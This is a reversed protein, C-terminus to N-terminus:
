SGVVNRIDRNDLIPAEGGLSGDLGVSVMARALDRSSVGVNPYLRRMVPYLSRFVRYGFNPETREVVPYIYGPRFIHVRGLGMRLLANEAMGKYRAFSVRSAEKSDAGQGSLFCLAAHPSQGHLAQALQVTYDVTIRRFVDDPVAGTYAGICYLAVDQGKLHEAIPACDGFDSHLVEQLRPHEVGRPRRGIVTVRTVAEHELCLSLAEGGVMGTAGLILVNM